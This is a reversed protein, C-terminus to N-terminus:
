PISTLGLFEGELYANARSYQPPPFGSYNEAARFYETFVGCGPLSLSVVWVNRLSNWQCIKKVVRYTRKSAHRWRSEFGRRFLYTALQWVFVFRKQSQTIRAGSLKCIRQLQPGYTPNANTGSINDDLSWTANYNDNNNDNNNNNHGLVDSRPTM